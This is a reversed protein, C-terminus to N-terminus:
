SSLPEGKLATQMREQVDENPESRIARELSKELGSPWEVRSWSALAAVAMNRNRVVPSKLGAEILKAGWGPFRRLDQLVFDLCSHQEFGRGLGLEDAAGTAIGDLDINAEAFEIVKGIRDKDCLVM